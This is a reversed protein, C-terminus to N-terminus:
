SKGSLKDSFFDWKYSHGFVDIINFIECNKLKKSNKEHPFPIANNLKYCRLCDALM